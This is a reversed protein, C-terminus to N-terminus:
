HGNAGPMTTLDGGFTLETGDETAMLARKERELQEIRTLQARQAAGHRRAQALCALCACVCCLTSGLAILVIAAPDLEAAKRALRDHAHSFDFGMLMWEGAEEDAEICSGGPHAANDGCRWVSADSTWDFDVCDGSDFGCGTVNCPRDCMGDGLWATHCAPPCAGGSANGRQAASLHVGAPHVAPCAGAFRFVFSWACDDHVWSMLRPAPEDHACILSYHVSNRRTPASACTTGHGFSLRLGPEITDSSAWTAQPSAPPLLLEAYTDNMGGMQGLSDAACPKGLPSVLAASGDLTGLRGASALWEASGLHEDRPAGPASGRQARPFISSAIDGGPLVDHSTDDCGAAAILEEADLPQCASLWLHLPESNPQGPRLHVAGAPIDVAQVGFGSLDYKANTGHPAYVCLGEVCDGGDWGCEAYNCMLDCETDGLWSSPCSARCRPAVTPPTGADGIICDGHDWQCRETECETDCEGDGLWAAECGPCGIRSAACEGNDEFCAETSCLPDCRGNLLLEIDCRCGMQSTGNVLYAGGDHVHPSKGDTPTVHPLAGPNITGGPPVTAPTVSPCAAAAFLSVTLHCDAKLSYDKLVPQEANPECHLLLSVSTRESPDRPCAAGGLYSMQLGLEPHAPTLPRIDTERSSGFVLCTDDHALCAGGPHADCCSAMEATVGFPEDAVHVHAKGCLNLGVVATVHAARLPDNDQLRRGNWGASPNIDPKQPETAPSSPSSPAHATPTPSVHPAGGGSSFLHGLGALNGPASRGHNALWSAATHSTSASASPEFMAYSAALPPLQWRLLGSRSHASFECDQSPLRQASPALSWHGILAPDRHYSHGDAVLGELPNHFDPSNTDIPSTSALAGADSSHEGPAGAVTPNVVSHGALLSGHLIGVEFADLRGDHNTDLAQKAAAGSLGNPPLHIHELEASSIQGDHNADLRALTGYGRAQAVMAENRSVLGDGDVDLAQLAHAYVPFDHADVLGDRNADFIVYLAASEPVWAPERVARRGLMESIVEMASLHGSDDTDLRDLTAADAELQTRSASAIQQMVRAELMSVYHDHNLDSEKFIDSHIAGDHSTVRGDGDLDLARELTTAPQWGVTRDEGSNGHSDTPPYFMVENAMREFITVRGDRPYQDLMDFAEQTGHRVEGVGDRAVAEDVDIVRDGDTDMDSYLEVEYPVRWQGLSEFRHVATPSATQLLRMAEVTPDAVSTATAGGLLASALLPLRM